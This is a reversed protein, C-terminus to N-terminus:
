EGLADHADPTQMNALVSEVSTQKGLMRSIYEANAEAFRREFHKSGPAKGGGLEILHNKLPLNAKKGSKWGRILALFSKGEQMIGECFFLEESSVIALRGVREHQLYGEMRVHREVEDIVFEM